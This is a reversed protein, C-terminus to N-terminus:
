KNKFVFLKSGFYNFVIVLVSTIIKWINGNGQFIDVSVLLIITEGVGSGIRCGLFKVLEPVVVKASWDKSKFVFPKNTLFAVLVAAVWAIGNSVVASLHLYNYLPIYVVYNAVTTLLGFLSYLIFAWYKKILSQIYTIM